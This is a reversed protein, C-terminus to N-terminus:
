TQHRHIQLKTLRQITMLLRPRYIPKRNMIRFRGLRSQLTGHFPSGSRSTRYNSPHLLNIFAQPHNRPRYITKANSCLPDPVVRSGLKSNGSHSSSTIEGVLTSSTTTFATSNPRFWGRKLTSCLPSVPPTVPLTVYSSEWGLDTAGNKNHAHHSQLNNDLMYVPSGFPHFHDLNPEVESRSFKSLPSQEYRDSATRRGVKEGPIFHTPLANRINTYHKLASPWLSADIAKPWRHAAHLLATRAGTTVDKIRVEAKGNQHHANVGCFSLTQQSKQIAEKFVKSDFLLV